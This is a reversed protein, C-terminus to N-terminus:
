YHLLDEYGEPVYRNRRDDSDESEQSPAAPMEKGELEWRQLIRLVYRWNRKNLVSAERFADTIWEAPFHREADRLEETVMPTLLGINQEYLVFINPREVQLQVDEAVFSQVDLDGSKLRELVDRGNASNVMYWEESGNARQVTVHLLTGRAVARELGDKLAEEGSVTTTTLGTLLREDALLEDLRAYRLQGVKRGIMWFIHLTTKLEGLHNLTPLLETFFPNPIPTTPVKGAPFGAFGQMRLRLRAAKTESM